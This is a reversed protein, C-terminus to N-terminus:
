LYKKINLIWIILILIIAPLAVWKKRLFLESKVYFIKFSNRRTILDIIIWLPITALMFAVVFGLPNCIFADGPKGNLIFLLSHTTGCSPCPIGTIKRFICVNITTHGASLQKYNWFFWAYGAISLTLVLGYLKNRSV